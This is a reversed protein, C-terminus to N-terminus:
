ISVFECTNVSELLHNLYGCNCLWVGAELIQMCMYKYLHVHLSEYPGGVGTNYNSVAIGMLMYMMIM